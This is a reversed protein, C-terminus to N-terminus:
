QTPRGMEVARSLNGDRAQVLKVNIGYLRSIIVMNMMEDVSSVNSSEVYGQILTPTPLDDIKITPDSIRFVSGSVSEFAKADPVNVVKIRDVVVDNVKIEGANSIEPNSGPPLVIPGREGVLPYGGSVSVIKGERDMMFRGDRTYGDGWPAMIVFFGDGGIAIDTPSGTRVLAGGKFDYYPSEVKPKMTELRRNAAELELPFGRQIVDTRKFGPTQANVINSMMSKVREDAAEIGAEGINFIRDTM